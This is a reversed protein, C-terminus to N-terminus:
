AKRKKKGILLAQLYMAAEIMEVLEKELRKAENPTIQKDGMADGVTRLYDGFEACTQAIAHDVDGDGVCPAPVAIFGLAEAHAFLMDHRGTFQELKIMEEISLIHTKTNPNLKSNLVAEGMGMRPALAAVGGPHDHGVRYAADLINM